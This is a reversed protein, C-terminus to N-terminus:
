YLRNLVSKVKRRIALWHSPRAKRSELFQAIEVRGMDAAEEALTKGHGFLVDSRSGNRVLYQVVRLRNERQIDDEQHHHNWDLLNRGLIPAGDSRRKRGIAAFALPTSGPHKAIANVDAGADVLARVADVSSAFAAWHLATQGLKDRINVDGNHYFPLLMRIANVKGAHACAHLPTMGWSGRTLPNVGAALLHRVADENGVKCAFHIPSLRRSFIDTRAGHRLLLEVMDGHGREIAVILASRKHDIHAANPDAGHELLSRVSAVDNHRMAMMLPSMDMSDYVNVEAGFKEVLLQVMSPTQVYHLMTQGEETRINVLEPASQLLFEVMQVNDHSVSKLLCGMRSMHNQMNSSDRVWAAECPPGGLAEYIYFYDVPAGATALQYAVNTSGHEFARMLPTIDDLSHQLALLLPDRKWYGHTGERRGRDELMELVYKLDTISENQAVERVVAPNELEAQLREIVRRRPHIRTFEAFTRSVTSLAAHDRAGLHNVIIDLPLDPLDNLGPISSAAFDPLGEHQDHWESPDRPEEETWDVGDTRGDQTAPAARAFLLSITLALYCYCVFQRAIMM